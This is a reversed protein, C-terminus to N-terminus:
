RSTSLSPAPAIINYVEHRSVAPETFELKHLAPGLKTAMFTDFKEQSEWVDVVRLHNGSPSAWHMILGDPPSAVVGMEANIADYDAALNRGEATFDLVFAIAM